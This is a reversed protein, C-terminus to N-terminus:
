KSWPYFWLMDHHNAVWGCIAVSATVVAATIVVLCVVEVICAILKMDAAKKWAALEELQAKAVLHEPSTPDYSSFTRQMPM